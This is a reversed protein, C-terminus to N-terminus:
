NYWEDEDEDGSFEDSKGFGYKVLAFFTVGMLVPMPLLLAIWTGAVHPILMMTMIFGVAGMVVYGGTSMQFRDDMWELYKWFWYKM